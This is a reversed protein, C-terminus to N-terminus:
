SESSPMEKEPFIRRGLFLGFIEANPIELQILDKCARFHTGNTILDDVLIIMEPDPHIETQNIRLNEKLESPNLRTESKHLPLRDDHNELLERIDIPVGIKQSLLELMTKIRDDYLPNSKSLSPPIPIFTLYNINKYDKFIGALATAFTDIAKLKYAWEKSNKKNLPKKFNSLLSNFEGFIYGGSGSTYEGLYFCLDSKNLYYHDRLMLEDIEKLRAILDM